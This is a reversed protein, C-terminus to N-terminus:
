WKWIVKVHPWMLRGIIGSVSKEERAWKHLELKNTEAVRNCFDTEYMKLRGKGGYGM